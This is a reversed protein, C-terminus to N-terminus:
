LAWVFEEVGHRLLRGKSDFFLYVAIELQSFLGRAADPYTICIVSSVKDLDLGALEAVTYHGRGPMWTGRILQKEPRELVEYHIRRSALWAKVEERSQGPRVAQGFLRDARAKTMPTRPFGVLACYVLGVLAGLVLAASWASRSRWFGGM